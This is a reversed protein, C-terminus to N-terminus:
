AKAVKRKQKQYNNSNLKMRSLKQQGAALRKQAKRYYRPYNAERGQNDVYFNPSSYDLGISNEQVQRLSLLQSSRRTKQFQDISNVVSM